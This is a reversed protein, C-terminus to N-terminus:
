HVPGKRISSYTLIFCDWGWPAWPRSNSISSAWPHITTHLSSDFTAHPGKTNATRLGILLIGVSSINSSGAMTAHIFVCEAWWISPDLLHLPIFDQLHFLGLQRKHPWTTSYYIHIQMFPISLWVLQILAVECMVWSGYGQLPSPGKVRMWLNYWPHQSIRKIYDRAKLCLTFHSHVMNCSWQM